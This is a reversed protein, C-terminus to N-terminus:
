ITQSLKYAKKLSNFKLNTSWKKKLVNIYLAVLYRKSKKKKRRQWM